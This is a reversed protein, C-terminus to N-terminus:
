ASSPMRSLLGDRPSPSTYLLCCQRRPRLLQDLLPGRHQVQHHEHVSRVRHEQFPDARAGLGVAHLLSGIFLDAGKEGGVAPRVLVDDSGERGVAAHLPTILQLWRSSLRPTLVPVPILWRRLGRQHAYERMIERYSVPEAGGIEFVGAVGEAAALAALLYAIVDEIAIPQARTNVWRPTVMVPLREVLARVMEFSLSGSGIIISARLEITPVGSAALVSGVEQRSALHESLGPGRGLGGLYIIRQVGAARAAAGFMAAATRDRPAFDGRADMAHVLYFATHVNALTPRLTNPDSVDGAMVATSGRVRSALVEPRRALCRVQEGREELATLLRGGVYGTAGTLLVIRRIPSDIM